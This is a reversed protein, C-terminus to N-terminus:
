EYFLYAGLRKFDSRLQTGRYVSSFCLIRPKRRLPNQQYFDNITRLMELCDWHSRSVNWFIVKWSADTHSLMRIVENPESCLTVSYRCVRLHRAFREANVADDDILLVSRM